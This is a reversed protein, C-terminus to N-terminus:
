LQFAESLLYQLAAPNGSRNFEQTFLNQNFFPLLKEKHVNCNRIHFSFALLQTKNIKFIDKIHIIVPCALFLELLQFFSYFFLQVFFIHLRFICSVRSCKAGWITLGYAINPYFCGYCFKKVQISYQTLRRLICIRSNLKSCINDM